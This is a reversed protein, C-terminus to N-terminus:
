EESLLERAFTAPDFPVLDLGLPKLRLELDIANVADPNRSTLKGAAEAMCVPSLNSPRSTMASAISPLPLTVPHM